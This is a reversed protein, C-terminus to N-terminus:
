IVMSPTYSVRYTCFFIPRNFGSRDQAGTHSEKATRLTHKLAYYGKTNIGAFRAYDLM